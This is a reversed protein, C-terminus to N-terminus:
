LGLCVDAVPSLLTRLLASVTGGCDPAPAGTPAAAVAPRAAAAAARPAVPPTAARAGTAASRVVVAAGADRARVPASRPAPVAAGSAPEAVRAGCGACATRENVAATQTGTQGLLAVAPRGLSAVAAGLAAVLALALLLVLWAGGRRPIPEDM